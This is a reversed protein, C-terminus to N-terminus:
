PAVSRTCAGTRGHRFGRSHATSSSRRSRNAGSGPVRSSLTHCDAAASTYSWCFPELADRAKKARRSCTPTGGAHGAGTDAVAVAASATFAGPRPFLVRRRGWGGNSACTPPPTRVGVAWKRLVWGRSYGGGCHCRRQACCCPHRIAWRGSVIETKGREVLRRLSLTGGCLLLPPRNGALLLCDGGRGAADRGATFADGRVVASAAPLGGVVPLADGGPELRGRQPLKPACPPLALPSGM